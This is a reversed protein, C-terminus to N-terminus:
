REPVHTTTIIVVRTIIGTPCGNRGRPQNSSLTKGDLSAPPATSTTTRKRPRTGASRGSAATGLLHVRPPPLPPATPDQPPTKQPTTIHHPNDRPRVNGKNSNRLSPLTRPRRFVATSSCPRPNPARHACARPHNRMPASYSKQRRWVRRPTSSRAGKKANGIRPWLPRHIVSRPTRSCCKPPRLSQEAHRVYSAKRRLISKLSTTPQLVLPRM